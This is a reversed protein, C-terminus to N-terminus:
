NALLLGYKGRVEGLCDKIERPKGLSGFVRQGSCVFWSLGVEM